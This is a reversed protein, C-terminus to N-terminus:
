AFLSIQDDSPPTPPQAAAIRLRAINAYDPNLDIGVFRRGEETCAVGTSGSGMFPDLVLNDPQTVLRVLYRMLAVPKVTPHHNAVPRNRDQGHALDQTFGKATSGGPRKPADHLGRERESRSAKACYFFRSAGGSDAFTDRLNATDPMAGYCVSRASRATGAAMFGSTLTGSQADLAAAAEEDLLVNAPWRGGPASEFARGRQKQNDWGDDNMAGLLYGRTNRFPECAVRCGDINLESVPGKRAVCIPEYAPKLKSRHKPFGSGFMWMATDEIVFGADEIACWIRHSTRPAGFALMRGGPKLVRLVERWLAPDFAVGAKDWRKGMFGIEYPPDTVVADVSADPLPIARADGILIM